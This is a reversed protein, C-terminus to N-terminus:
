NRFTILDGVLEEEEKIEEAYPIWLGQSFVFAHSPDYKGKELPYNGLVELKEDLVTLYLQRSRLLFTYYDEGLPVEKALAEQSIRYYVKQYPDYLLKLYNPSTLVWNQFYAQDWSDRFTQPEASQKGEFSSIPVEQQEGSYFAYTSVTPSISYVFAFGSKGVAVSPFTTYNLAIGDFEAPHYVPLSTWTKTELSYTAFVRKKSAEAKAFYFLVSKQDPLYILSSAIREYPYEAYVEESLQSLGEFLNFKQQDAGGDMFLLLHAGDFFLISDSSIYHLKKPSFADILEIKKSNSKFNLLSKKVLVRSFDDFYMISDSFIDYNTFRILETNEIELMKVNMSFSHVKDKENSCSSFFYIFAFSIVLNVFLHSGTQARVNFLRLLM